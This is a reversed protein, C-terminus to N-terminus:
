SRSGHYDIGTASGYIERPHTHAHVRKLDGKAVHLYRQTTTLNEHGLLEQIHRLDAGSNLMQTALTHRFSHSTLHKKIGARKQYIQLKYFLGSKDMHKGWRSLFLENITPGHPDVLLPRVQALYERLWALAIYGVPVVRQKGGKGHRINCFGQAFDIDEVALCLLENIRMGTCWFLELICRDRFGTPTGLGPQALLRRVEDTTLIDSPITQPNRPLRLVTAPDSVIRKTQRLFRFLSQVYSLAHTQTQTKLRQGTKKSVYEYVYTQYDGMIEVDIAALDIRGMNDIIPKGDPGSRGELFRRLIKVKEPFDHQARAAYGGVTLWQKWATMLDDWTPVKNKEELKGTGTRGSQELATDM